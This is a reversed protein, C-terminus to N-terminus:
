FRYSFGGQLYVLIMNDLYDQNDSQEEPNGKGSSFILHSRGEVEVSFRRSFRFDFALAANLGGAWQHKTYDITQEVWRDDFIFSYVPPDTAIPEYPHQEGFSPVDFFQIKFPVRWNYLGGGVSLVPSFRSRQSVRYLINIDLSYIELTGFEAIVHGRGPGGQQQALLNKQRVLAEMSAITDQVAGQLKNQNYGFSLEWATRGRNYHRWRLSFTGGPDAFAAADGAPAAVGGTVVLLDRAVALSPALLLLLALLVGRRAWGSETVLQYFAV